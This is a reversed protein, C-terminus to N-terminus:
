ELAFVLLKIEWISAFETGESRPSCMNGLGKSHQFQRKFIVKSAPTIQDKGNKKLHM